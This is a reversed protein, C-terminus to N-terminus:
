IALPTSQTAENATPLFQIYQGSEATSVWVVLTSFLDTKFLSSNDTYVFSQGRGATCSNRHHRHKTYMQYYALLQLLQFLWFSQASCGRALAPLLIRWLLRYPRDMVTFLLFGGGREELQVAGHQTTERRGEAKTTKFIRGARWERSRDWHCWPPYSSNSCHFGETEYALPMPITCVSTAM